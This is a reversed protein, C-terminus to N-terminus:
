LDQTSEIFQMQRPPQGVLCIQLFIIQAVKKRNKPNSITIESFHNTPAARYRDAEVFGSVGRSM